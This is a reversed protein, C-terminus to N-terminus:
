KDNSAFGTGKFTVKVGMPVRSMKGKCIKCKPMPESNISHIIEETHKKSCQYIYSPM